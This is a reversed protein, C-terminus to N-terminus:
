IEFILWSRFYYFIVKFDNVEFCNCVVIVGLCVVGRKGVLNVLNIMNIFWKFCFIDLGLIEGLFSKM